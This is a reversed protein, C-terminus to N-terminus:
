TVALIREKPNRIATELGYVFCILFIRERDTKNSFNNASHYTNADFCIFRNFKDKISLTKNFFNNEYEEKFNLEESTYVGGEVTKKRLDSEYKNAEDNYWPLIIDEKLEYFSTGCDINDEKSLYVMFTFVNEDRHIWGTNSNNEVRQFHMSYHVDRIHRGEYYSNLAKQLIHNSLRHNIELLNKSRKGPWLGRSDKEYELSEAYKRIAYPNEFFDDIIVTPQYKM